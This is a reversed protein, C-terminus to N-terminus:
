NLYKNFITYTLFNIGFTGFFDLILTILLYTRINDTFSDILNENHIFNTISLIDFAYNSSNLFILFGIYILFIISFIILYFNSFVSERFFSIFSLCLIGCILYEICLVFFYSQFELNRLHEEIQYDDGKFFFCFFLLSILKFSVNESLQM